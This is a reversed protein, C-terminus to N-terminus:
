VGAGAGAQFVGVGPSRVDGGPMGPLGAPRANMGGGIAQMATMQKLLDVTKQIHEKVMNIVEPPLSIDQLLPSHIRLHYIHDEGQSPEIIDGQIMLANEEEPTHIMVGQSPPLFNALGIEDMKDILWGTLSRLAQMGQATQPMFFFNQSLKDYISFAKQAELTKNSNLVNGTLEFDPISNLAFDSMSISEFKFPNEKGEGAIRVFKNKPMNEKYLLYWRRFIDKLTRNKRRIILNMRTNGQQVVLEAKRAPASPDIKSEVGASYDSVGFLVQAQSNVIEMLELMSRDPPAIKVMNVSNPDSSPFLYGAKVKIPEDRMNGTPAFFGFPNNSQTIGYVYQNYLTDYCNQTGAMFEVIGTGERRGEDDPIFVDMGIPREKLPFKNKKLSCLTESVLEIVAIFEEELEEYSEEDNEDKTIQKIRLTGYFETFLKETKGLPIENGEKDKALNDEGGSDGWGGISDFTDSYYRGEDESRKVKDANRRIIRMEWDPKGDATASSPYIYDKRSFVELKPGNYLLKTVEREQVMVEGDEDTMSESPNLPNPITEKQIETGYEKTWYVIYPSEGGKESAHFMRDCNEFIELENQISWNGFLDLKEIKPIDGEETPLVRLIKSPTFFVNMVNAHVVELTVTTLPSRYTPSDGDDNQQPKPKMRYVDDYEDIKNCKETHKAKEENYLSKIHAAIREKELFDLKILKKLNKSRVKKLAVSYEQELGEELESKILGEEDAM